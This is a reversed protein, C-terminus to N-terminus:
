QVGTSGFGGVGRASASLDMVPRYEVATVPQIVLQAIRDRTAVRFEHEGTNLLVVKIEGRYGSDIVGALVDIGHKAALGSRPKIYGVHGEPIAVALGTAITARQGPRIVASGVAALDFGADSPNGQKPLCADPHLQQLDVTLRMRVESEAPQGATEKM